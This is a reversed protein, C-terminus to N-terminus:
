TRANCYREGGHRGADLLEDTTETARADPLVQDVRGHQAVRRRHTEPVDLLPRRVHAPELIEREEERRVLQVVADRRQLDVLRRQEVPERAIRRAAGEDLDAPELAPAREGERGRQRLSDLQPRVVQVDRQSGVHRALLEVRLQEASELAVPDVVLHMEDDGVRALDLRRRLLDLQEEDVAVMGVLARAGVEVAPTREDPGAPM